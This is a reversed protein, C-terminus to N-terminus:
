EGVGLFLAAKERDLDQNSSYYHKGLLHATSNFVRPNYPFEMHAFSLALKKIYSTIPNVPWGFNGKIAQVVEKVDSLVHIRAFGNEISDLM